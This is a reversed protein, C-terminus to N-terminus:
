SLLLTGKRTDRPDACRLRACRATASGAGARARRWPHTPPPKYAGAQQAAPRTAAPPPPPQTPLERSALMRGDAADLLQVRGDLRQGVVVQRRRRPTADAGLLEFCRGQWCVCGSADVVRRQRIPCLVAELEQASPAPRHADAEDAAAVAFKANHAPLFRQELYANAAELDTIGELRLLKVLRDQLTGHTREVRGKAQPSHACILAVGLEAMAEGFRTLPRRGTRHEIEDAAKDNRRYISHRDPYLARPLGYALTWDRLLTMAAETTEAAFFRAATWGTADDVMVM